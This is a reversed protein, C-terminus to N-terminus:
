AKHRHCWDCDLTHDNVMGIAQMFAYCIVPGVYKFGQQQLANSMSMSQVTQTPVFSANPWRNVTVRHDVFGWLFESFSVGQAKMNLYCKANNIIAKIKLKSRIVGRENLLRGMDQQDFLAIKEPVFGAYAQYFTHRRKLITLWSLGAQQGELMLKAFLDQSDHCPVSWENDHYDIYLQDDTVWSCRRGLM